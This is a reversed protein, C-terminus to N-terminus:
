LSSVSVQILNSSALFQVSGDTQTFVSSPLVQFQVTGGNNPSPVSVTLNPVPYDDVDSIRGTCADPASYLTISADSGVYTAWYTATGPQRAGGNSAGSATLAVFVGAANTASGTDAAPGYNSHAYTATFTAGTSGTVVVVASNLFTATTLGTLTVPTGVTFANAATVTLVNTAIGVNTITDTEGSFNVVQGTSYNAGASWSPALSTPLTYFTILDRGSATFYNGNTPDCAVFVPNLSVDTAVGTPQLTIVASNPVATKAM